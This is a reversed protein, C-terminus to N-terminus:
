HKCKFNKHTAELLYIPDNNSKKQLHWKLNFNVEVRFTNVLFFFAKFKIIAKNVNICLSIKVLMERVVRQQSLIFRQIIFLIESASTPTEKSSSNILASVLIM